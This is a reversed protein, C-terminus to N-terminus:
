QGNIFQKAALVSGFMQGNHEGGTIEVGYRTPPKDEGEAVARGPLRFTGAPIDLLETLARAIFKADANSM